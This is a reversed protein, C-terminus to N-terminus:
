SFTHIPYVSHKCGSASSTHGLQIWPCCVFSATRRFSSPWSASAVLYLSTSHVRPKLSHCLFFSGADGCVDRQLDDPAKKGFPTVLGPRIVNEHVSLRVVICEKNEAQRCIESQSADRESDFVYKANPDRQPNVSNPIIQGISLVPSRLHVTQSIGKPQQHVDHLHRIRVVGGRRM